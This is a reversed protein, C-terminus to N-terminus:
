LIREWARIVDELAFDLARLRAGQALRERLAQDDALRGMAEALADADGVPVLLGDEGDTILEDSGTCATSICPLGMMMAEILANSMGEYDSSLVFAEADRMAEHVDTRYGEFFVSDGVGLDCAQQRLEDLQPGRGFIHLTHDRHSQAFTAFAGILLSFNKQPHLRGMAVIRKRSAGAHCPVTVPNHIICSKEQVSRPFMARVKKTQFVVYDARRCSQLSKKFYRGEKQSPDNRESVIRYGGFSMANLSNPTVLFSITTEIRYAARIRQLLLLRRVSLYRSAILAGLRTPHHRYTIGAASVTTVRPDVPYAEEDKQGLYLLYVNHRVCLRNALACAVREAGGGSISSVFLLVNRRIGLSAGRRGGRGRRPALSPAAVLYGDPDRRVVDDLCSLGRAREIVLAGEKTWGSEPTSCLEANNRPTRGNAVATCFHLSGAPNSNASFGAQANGVALCNWVEHAVVQNEGGLKFGAGGPKTRAAGAEGMTGNQYAVCSDLEVSGIPGFTSKAYLDFGDDINQYALCRYFVNGEGVRLKAGFGDANCRYIDCNHHSDCDKVLNRSPWDRRDAGPRSIVLIGTDGNAYAECNVIRNASGFVTLGSLPSNCLVLGEVRWFDADLVLLPQGRTMLVGDVYAKRPHEAELAIPEDVTGSLGAAIVLPREPRYRGDKLVIRMGPRASSLARELTAPEDARGSADPSGTPAVYCVQPLAEGAVSGEACADSVLRRDFPYDPISSRITGEPTHSAVGPWTAFEIDHVEMRVGRAVAFGVCILSPDQRMLFDCGPVDMRQGDCTLVLGGDTKEAAFERARGAFPKDDEVSFARSEDVVRANAPEFCDPRVHGAVLRTGLARARGFRGLLLSNRHCCRRQECADSDALMIGCGSQQDARSSAESATVTASLRFGETSPDITRYCFVFSDQSDALKGTDAVLVLSRDMEVRQSSCAAIRVEQGDVLATGEADGM